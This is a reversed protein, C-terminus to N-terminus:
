TSKFVNKKCVIREQSYTYRASGDGSNRLSWLKVTKDKSASIFSNENDLYCLSRVSNTHGSIIYVIIIVSIVVSIIYVIIIVSIVVSIIYVIIIVSIVVSIIYFIIIM